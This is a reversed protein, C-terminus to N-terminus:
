GVIPEEEYGSRDDRLTWSRLDEVNEAGLSAIV